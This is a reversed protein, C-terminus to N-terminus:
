AFNDLNDGHSMGAHRSMSIDVSKKKLNIKSYKM